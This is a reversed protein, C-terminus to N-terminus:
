LQTKDLVKDPFKSPFALSREIPTITRHTIYHGLFQVRTQFLSIKAKSVVLGNKKTVNFFTQLHKFYQEISNSFILVDDIYVVYFNSYPNFIDNM